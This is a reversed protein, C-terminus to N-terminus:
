RLQWQKIAEFPYFLMLINLTLNDRVFYLSLLEVAVVFLLMWKWGCRWALWFGVMAATLDFTSNLISDGYYDLSATATRYRDIIFPSNELIEWSAEILSATLFRARVGLSRSLPLLLWYFFIGHLVHSFTYPDVMWQSTDHTWAGAWVGFGSDSLIGRGMLWLVLWFAVFLPVIVSVVRPTSLDRTAAAETRGGSTGNPSSQSLM